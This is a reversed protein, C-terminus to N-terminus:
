GSFDTLQFSGVLATRSIEDIPSLHADMNVGNIMGITPYHELHPSGVLKQMNVRSTAGTKVDIKSCM